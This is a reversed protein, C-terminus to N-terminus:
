PLPLARKPLPVGIAMAIEGNWVGGPPDVPLIGVSANVNGATARFDVAFLGDGDAPIYLSFTDLLVPEVGLADRLEGYTMVHHGGDRTWIMVEM